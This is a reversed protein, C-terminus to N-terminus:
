LKTCHGKKFGHKRAYCMNKYNCAINGCRVPKNRQCWKKSLDLKKKRYVKHCLSLPIKFRPKNPKKSPRPSPKPTPNAQIPISTPKLTPLHIIGVLCDEDFNFGATEAHCPNIYKCITNDPLLCESPIDLRPCLTNPPPEPCATAMQIGISKHTVGRFSSSTVCSINYICTLIFTIRFVWQDSRHIKTSINKKNINKMDEKKFIKRCRNNISSSISDYSQM